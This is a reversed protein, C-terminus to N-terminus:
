RVNTYGVSRCGWSNNALGSAQGHSVEGPAIQPSHLSSSSGVIVSFCCVRLPPCRNMMAASVCNPIKISPKAMSKGLQLWSISIDRLHTLCILAMCPLSRGNYTTTHPSKTSVSLENEPAIALQFFTMDPHSRLKTNSCCTFSKLRTHDPRFGSM